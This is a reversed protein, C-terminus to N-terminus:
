LWRLNAKLPQKPLISLQRRLGAAEGLRGAMGIGVGVRRWSGFLQRQCAGCKIWVVGHMVLGTLWATCIALDENRQPDIANSRVSVEM